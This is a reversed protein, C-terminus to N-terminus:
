AVRVRELFEGIVSRLGGAQAALHGSAALVQTAAAGTGDAVNRLGNLNAHVEASGSSAEDVSRAIEGTASSQEAMAEAVQAAIAGQRHIAAVVAHIAGVVTQTQDRVLAIQRDIEQTAAATQNALGKVEGAVVAFGKGAEGARAAEITANLALMNTQAAIASILRVVDDIRGVTEALVGVEGAARNADAVATDAMASSEAVRQSIEAISASLEEAAAAVMQVNASAQDSAAAAAGAQAATQSAGASMAGATAELQSAAAAVHRVLASADTDFAATLQTILEARQQRAQAEARERAELERREVLNHRFVELAQAMAGIEDRRRAGPATVGADGDALRRMAATIDALPPVISRATAWAILAGAGLGCILAAWATVRLLSLRDEVEAADATLLEKQSDVMGGSRSGDAAREGALIAQARTARPLLEAVLIRTGAEGPGAAEAQQQFAAIQPLLVKLEDWRERNTQATFRAALPDMAASLTALNRWAEARDTRFRDNGTLLYGRLAALSTQLQTEMRASTEAVPLRLGVIRQNVEHLGQASLAAVTTVLWLLACLAGFGLVLRRGISPGTSLLKVGM